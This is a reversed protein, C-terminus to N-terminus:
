PASGVGSVDPVADTLSLAAVPCVRVCLGCRICRQDDVRLENGLTLACSRCVSICSGCLDCADKDIRIM